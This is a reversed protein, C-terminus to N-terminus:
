HRHGLLVTLDSVCLHRDLWHDAPLLERIIM